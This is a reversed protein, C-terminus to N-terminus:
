TDDSSNVPGISYGGLEDYDSDGKGMTMDLDDRTLFVEAVDENADAAPLTEADLGVKRDRLDQLWRIWEDYKEKIHDPATRRNTRTLWLEYYAMWANCRQISGPTSTLPTEYGAAKCYSEILDAADLLLRNLEDCTYVGASETITIGRFTELHSQDFMDVMNTVTAYPAAM